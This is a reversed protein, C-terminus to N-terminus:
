EQPATNHTITTTAKGCFDNEHWMSVLVFMFLQTEM